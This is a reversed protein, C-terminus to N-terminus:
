ISYEPGFPIAVNQPIRAAGIYIVDVCEGDACMYLVNAFVCMYLVNAFVCMYLVIAFVCVCVYLVIAFVCM